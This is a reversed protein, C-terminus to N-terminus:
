EKDKIVSCTKKIGEKFSILPVFGTDENLETLDACLYTIAQENNPIAGFLMKANKNGVADYIMKVYEKLPLGQGSGVVYTKADKGREGIAEFARAADSQYLYDWIQTCQSFKVSEGKLFARIASGVLTYANDKEGYVSIIRGWNFSIGQRKAEIAGLRGACYKAVGYGMAPNVPTVSTLNCDQKGYEAQSGAGVFKYCGIEKAAKVAKLTAEINSTQLLTDNRSEGYVGMWAFHYFIDCKYNIKEPLKEIENLDCEVIHINNNEPLNTIKASNKRVVAIVEKGQEASIRALESGIMGSAGTIVIRM